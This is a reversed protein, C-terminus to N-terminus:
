IREAPSRACRRDLKMLWGADIRKVAIRQGVVFLLLSREAVEM